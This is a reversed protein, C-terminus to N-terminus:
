FRLCGANRFPCTSLMRFYNPFRNFFYCVPFVEINIIIVDSLDVLIFTDVTSKTINGAFIRRMLGDIQIIAFRIILIGNLFIFTYPTVETLQNARYIITYDHFFVPNGGFIKVPNFKLSFAQGEVIM